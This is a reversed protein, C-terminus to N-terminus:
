RRPRPTSSFPFPFVLSSDRRVCVTCPHLLAIMQCSRHTDLRTPTPIAAAKPIYVHMPYAACLCSDSGVCVWVGRVGRMRGVVVMRVQLQDGVNGTLAGPSPQVLHWVGEHMVELGAVADQLLLTLAGADTHHHVGFTGPPADPEAPYYNVRCFGSHDPQTHSINPPSPHM